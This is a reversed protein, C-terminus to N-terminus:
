QSIYINDIGSYITKHFNVAIYLRSLKIPAGSLRSLDGSVLM